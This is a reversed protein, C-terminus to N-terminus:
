LKVMKEALNLGLHAVWHGVLLVVWLVALKLGMWGVWNEVMRDVKMVVWKVEM